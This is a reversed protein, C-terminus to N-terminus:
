LRDALCRGFCAILERWTGGRGNADGFRHFGIGSKVECDLFIDDGCYIGVHSLNRSRYSADFTGGFFVLDGPQAKDINNMIQCKEYLGDHFMGRITSGAVPLRREVGDIVNRYRYGIQDLVYCIFGSCDFSTELDSGGWVYPYGLLPRAIALESAFLPYQALLEPTFNYDIAKVLGSAHPYKDIPFLDPRCGHSRMYGAYAAIQDHTLISDITCHMGFNVFKVYLDVYQRDIVEVDVGAFQEAYDSAVQKDITLTYNRRPRKLQNVVEIIEPDDRTFDPKVASCIAMLVYPDHGIEDINYHYAHYRPFDTEINALRYAYDNEFALYNDEVVLMEEDGALFRADVTAATIKNPTM